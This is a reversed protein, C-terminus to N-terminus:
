KFLYVGGHFSDSAIVFSYLTLPGCGSSIPFCRVVCEHGVGCVCVSLHHFLTCILHLIVVM